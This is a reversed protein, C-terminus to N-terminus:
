HRGGAAVAEVGPVLPNAVLPLRGRTRVAFYREALMFGSAHFGVAGDRCRRDDRNQDIGIDAFRDRPERCCEPEDLPYPDALVVPSLEAGAIAITGHDDAVYSAIATGWKVALDGVGYSDSHFVGAGVTLSGPLVASADERLRIVECV